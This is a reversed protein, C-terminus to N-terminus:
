NYSGDGHPLRCGQQAKSCSLEGAIMRGVMHSIPREATGFSESGTTQLNNFCQTSKALWSMRFKLCAAARWSNLEQPSGVRSHDEGVNQKLEVELALPSYKLVTCYM